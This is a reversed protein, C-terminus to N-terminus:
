LNPIATDNRTCHGSAGHVYNFRAGIVVLTQLNLMNRELEFAREFGHKQTEGVVFLIPVSIERLIPVLGMYEDESEFCALTSPAWNMDVRGNKDVYTELEVFM